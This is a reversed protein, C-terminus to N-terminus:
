PEVAYDPFLWLLGERFTRVGASLHTEGALYRAELSFPRARQPASWHAIWADAPVRFRPDDFEAEAVFLRTAAAPMAEAGRWELFFDLNRHLAPNSAILGWFLRPRTLANYLVFQGGLSHGYLIRRGPDAPYRAEIFPMLEDALVSQFDPAKGWWERDEAPATFDSARYNGGEFRDSGYSLGVLVLEPLEEGIRLYHYYSSLLPYNVGGDLLYVVPFPGEEGSDPRRVYLHLPHGLAESDFLHYRTDGLGQLKGEDFGDGAAPIALALLSCLMAHLFAAKM